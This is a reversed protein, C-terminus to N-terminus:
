ELDKNRREERKITRKASAASSSKIDIVYNIRDLGKALAIELYVLVTVM